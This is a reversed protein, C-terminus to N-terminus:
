PNEIYLPNLMEMRTDMEARDWMMGVKMSSQSPSTMKWVTIWIWRVFQSICKLRRRSCPSYKCAQDEDWRQQRWSVAVEIRLKQRIAELYAALATTQLQMLRQGFYSHLLCWWWILLNLHSVCCVSAKIVVSLVMAVAGRVTGRPPQRQCAPTPYGSLQATDCLIWFNIKGLCCTDLNELHFSPSWDQRGINELFLWFMGFRKCWPRLCRPWATNAAMLAM